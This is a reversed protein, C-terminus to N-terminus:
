PLSWYNLSSVKVLFNISDTAGIFVGFYMKDFSKDTLETLLIGNAYLSLKNGDVKIGIRNTMNGGAQIGKASKWKALTAMSSGDWKWLVYKGECSIGFLYGRDASSAPSLMLGFHDMGKCANGFTATMEVYFKSSLLHPALAWGNRNNAQFATMELKNNNSKFQIFEDQYAYWADTGDFGEHWDPNGLGALPDTSALTAAPSTVTTATSVTKSTETPALPTKTPEVVAPKEQTPTLSIAPQTPSNLTTAPTSTLKAALTQVAQTYAVSPVITPGKGIPRTCAALLGLALCATISLKYFNSYKM